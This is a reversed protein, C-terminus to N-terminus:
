QNKEENDDKIFETLERNNKITEYSIKKDNPYHM